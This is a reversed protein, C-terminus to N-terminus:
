WSLCWMELMGTQPYGNRRPFQWVNKFNLKKLNDRLNNEHPCVIVFCGREGSTRTSIDWKLKSDEKAQDIQYKIEEISSHDLAALHFLACCFTPYKTTNSTEVMISRGRNEYISKLQRIKYKFGSKLSSLSPM